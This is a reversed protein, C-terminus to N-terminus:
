RKGGVPLGHIHGVAAYTEERDGDALSEENRGARVDEVIFANSREEHHMM